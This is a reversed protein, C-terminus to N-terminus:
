KRNVRRQWAEAAAADQEAKGDAARAELLAPYEGRDAEALVALVDAHCPEPACWCALTSGRLLQVCALLTPESLLHRCYASVAAENSGLAKVSYPNALPHARLDWSGARRPAMRRGVYVLGKPAHELRPGYDHIRGKLNIVTTPM